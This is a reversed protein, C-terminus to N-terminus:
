QAEEIVKHLRNRERSKRNNRRKREDRKQREGTWREM